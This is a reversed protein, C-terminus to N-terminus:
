VSQVTESPETRRRRLLLTGYILLAVVAAVLWAGRWPSIGFALPRVNWIQLRSAGGQNAVVALRDGGPSFAVQPVSLLAPDGLNLSGIVVGLHLDVVECRVMPGPPSFWQEWWAPEASSSKALLGTSAHGACDGQPSLAYLMAALQNEFLIQEHLLVKRPLVNLVRGTRPELVQSHSPKVVDQVCLLASVGRMAGIYVWYSEPCPLAYTMVCKGGQLDWTLGVVAYGEAGKEQGVALLTTGDPSFDFQQLAVGEPPTLTAQLAGGATAHLRIVNRDNEIELVALARGDPAAAFESSTDLRCLLKKEAVSWAHVRVQGKEDRARYVLVSGDPSFRPTFTQVSQGQPEVPLAAPRGVVQGTKADLILLERASGPPPAVDPTMFGAPSTIALWRGDSSLDCLLDISVSVQQGTAGVGVLAVCQRDGTSVEHLAVEQSRENRLLILQGDASYWAPNSGPAVDWAHVLRPSAIGRLVVYTLIAALVVVGLRWCWRGMLFNLVRVVM